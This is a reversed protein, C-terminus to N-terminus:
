KESFAKRPMKNSQPQMNVHVHGLPLQSGNRTPVLTSPASPLRRTPFTTSFSSSARRTMGSGPRAVSSTWSFSNLNLLLLDMLSAHPAKRLPLPLTTNYQEVTKRLTCHSKTVVSVCPLSAKKSITLAKGASNTVANWPKRSHCMALFNLMVEVCAWASSFASRRWSTSWLCLGVGVLVQEVNANGLEHFFVLLQYELDAEVDELVLPAVHRESVERAFDVRGVVVVIQDGQELRAAKRGRSRRRISPPRSFFPRAGLDDHVEAFVSMASIRLGSSVAAGGRGVLVTMSGLERLCSSIFMTMRPSPSLGSSPSALSRQWFPWSISARKARSSNSSLSSKGLELRPHLVVDGALLSLADLVEAVALQHVFVANEALDIRVVGVAEVEDFGLLLPRLSEVVREGELLIATQVCHAARSGEEGRGLDVEGAFQQLRVGLRHIEEEVADELREILGLIRVDIEVGALFDHGGDLVSHFQVLPCHHVHARHLGVRGGELFMRGLAREQHFMVFGPLSWIVCCHQTILKGVGEPCGWHAMTLFSPM